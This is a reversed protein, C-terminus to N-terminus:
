PVPSQASSVDDTSVQITDQPHRATNGTGRNERGIPCNKLSMPRAIKKRDRTATKQATESSAV